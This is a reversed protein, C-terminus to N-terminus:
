ASPRRVRAVLSIALIRDTTEFGPPPAAAYRLTHAIKLSLISNLTVTFAVDQDFKWQETEDLPLLFRPEYTFKGTSVVLRYAAAVSFTASNLSDEPGQGNLYGVGTDLQLRHPQQDVALYSLGGEIVHREDVGAFVDRLFDYQGYGSLRPNFARAARFLAAISRATLEDEAESQAFIAKGNYTWSDPRWIFDGGAGLSKTSANGSTDLFTGQASAELRPPADSAPDPTQGVVVRSPAVVLAILAFAYGLRVRIRCRVTM